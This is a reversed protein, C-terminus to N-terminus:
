STDGPTRIQCQIPCDKQAVLRFYTKARPRPRNEFVVWNQEIQPLSSDSGELLVNLSLRAHILAIFGIDISLGSAEFARDDLGYIRHREEETLDINPDSYDYGNKTAFSEMCAYCGTRGPLYAYVDGGIGTRFVAGTVCPIQLNVCTQNIFERAGRNDVCCLVLSADKCEDLFRPNNIVDEKFTTVEADPNRDSIWEHQIAVKSKKLQSRLAPHKVLNEEDYIDPDFLIWRRIGSMTLHQNVPAGGSGLGVQVVRTEALLDPNLLHRIRSFDLSQKTM